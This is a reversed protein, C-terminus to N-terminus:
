RSEDAFMSRRSITKWLFAESTVLLSIENAQFEEVAPRCDININGKLVKWVNIKKLQM